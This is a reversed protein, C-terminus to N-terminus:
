DLHIAGQIHSFAYHELKSLDVVRVETSDLHDDLEETTVLIPTETM